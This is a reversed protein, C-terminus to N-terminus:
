SFSVECHGNDEVRFEDSKGTRKRILNIHGSDCSVM